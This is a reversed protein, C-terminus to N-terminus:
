TAEHATPEADPSEPAAAPAPAKWSKLASVIEEHEAQSFLPTGTPTRDVTRGNTCLRFIRAAETDPITRTKIIAKIRSWLDPTMFPPIATATATTLDVPVSQVGDPIESEDLVELGCIALVVRRKAKTLAKLRANAHDPTGKAGPFSVIGAEDAFQGDPRTGRVRYEILGGSEDFGTIAVSIKNKGALQQTAARTAYLVLKNQLRVFQFPQSRPDLGAATARMSYYSLRQAPSLKELDGDVLIQQLTAADPTEINLASNAQAHVVASM